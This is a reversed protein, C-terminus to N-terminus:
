SARRYAAAASRCEDCRCGSQYRARTGHPSPGRRGRMRQREKESLGGRIGVKERLGDDLCEQRVPCTACIAKAERATLYDGRAPFWLNTDKGKCAADKRWPQETVIGPYPIRASM